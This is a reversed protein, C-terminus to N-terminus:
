EIDDWNDIAENLIDILYDNFNKYRENKIKSLRDWSIIPCEDDVMGATDLCMVFEGCDQVVVCNADLGFKRYKETSSVVTSNYNSQVGNITIGLVGGYGYQRLFQKYSKPFNVKLQEEVKNIYKEDVQGYFRGTNLYQVIISDIKKNEM